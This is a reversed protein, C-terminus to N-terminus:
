LNKTRGQGSLKKKVVIVFGVLAVIGLIFPTNGGTSQSGLHASGLRSSSAAQLKDFKEEVAIDQLKMKDEPPAPKDAVVAPEKAEVKESAPEGEKKEEEGVLVGLKTRKVTCTEFKDLKPFNEQIYKPGEHILHQKPDEKYESNFSEVNEMGEIVEGLPTEWPMAGLSKASGYSIFLQADRSNEGGGAYSVLGPRFQRLEPLKPDDPITKRAFKRLDKDDSYSQHEAVAFISPICVPISTCVLLHPPTCSQQNLIPM